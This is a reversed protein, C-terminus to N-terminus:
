RRADYKIESGNELLNGQLSSFTVTKGHIRVNSNRLINGNFVLNKANIIAIGSDTLINDSISYNNGMKACISGGSTDSIENRLIKLGDVSFKLTYIDELFIHFFKNGIPKVSAPSVDIGIGWGTWFGKVNSIKNDEAVSNIASEFHIGYRRAGTITCNRIYINQSNIGGDSILLGNAGVYIGDGTVNSITVNEVTVNKSSAIWIGYGDFHFISSPNFLYIHSDADGTVFGNKIVVNESEAVGFVSYTGYFNAALKFEAGNLDIETDSPVIIGGTPVDALNNTDNYVAYEGAAFKIKNYGQEKAWEIARNIGLTTKVADGGSASIGFAENDVTYWGNADAVSVGNLGSVDAKEAFFLPYVIPIATTACFVTVALLLIGLLIKKYKANTKRM